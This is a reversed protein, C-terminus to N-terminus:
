QTIEIQLKDAILKFKEIFKEMNALREQMIEKEKESKELRKEIETKTLDLLMDEEAITDKMGLLESYYHIKDSKKWGFRYKLASESKYRPLWYCCSCHRFDYMTIESYKQGAESIGDGLVKKALRKLYQNVAHPSFKFLYDDPKLSKLKVYEKILNSCLMLKIRRGFTKTTEERINLEKFDNFFDSVKINMLETPARIGTDFLFMILVKHQYLANDCLKKVQEETLYVWDPKEQKTDLDTTIDLVEIGKKKNIKIWWHWFAKFIKAYTETSKFEGGDERKIIGKKLNSFFSILQEEKIKTINDLNYCEKFRRSFFAMRHKLLLLRSYSRSGKVSGQAINIGEEMDLVYRIILDSNDKSIGLIDRGTIKEKWKLYTEKHKWPDIKM